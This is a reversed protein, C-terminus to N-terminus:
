EPPFGHLALKPDADDPQMLPSRQQDRQGV